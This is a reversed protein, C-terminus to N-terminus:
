QTMYYLISRMDADTITARVRMHRVITRMMRPPFKEPAMHCRGCNARFRREGEFRLHELDEPQKQASAPPAVSVDSRGSAWILSTLLIPVAIMTFIKRV